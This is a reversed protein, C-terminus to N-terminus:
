EEFAACPCMPRPDDEIHVRNFKAPCRSHHKCKTGDKPKRAAEIAANVRNIQGRTLDLCALPCSNDPHTILGKWFKWEGGCLACKM